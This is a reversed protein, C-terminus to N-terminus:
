ALVDLLFFVLSVIIGAAAIMKGLQGYGWFRPSSTWFWHMHM